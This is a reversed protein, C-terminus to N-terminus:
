TTRFNITYARYNTGDWVLMFEFVDGASCNRGSQQIVGDNDTRYPYVSNNMASVETSRGYIKGNQTSSAHCIITVKIKFKDSSTQGIGLKDAIDYRSPLGVASNTYTFRTIITDNVESNYGIILIQDTGPWMETLKHGVVLGDSLIDGKATIAVNRNANETDIFIGYNTGYPNYIKNEFRGVATAGTSAPLVNSGIFAAAAGNSFKIFDDYLALGDYTASQNPDQTKGIRYNGLTWGGIDGSTAHITGTIEADTFKVSGDHRIIAKATGAIAQSYSGGAWFAPNDGASGAIGNIGMVENSSEDLSILRGQKFILNALNAEEVLLVNVALAKLWPIEEYYTAITEPSPETEGAPVTRTIYTDNLKYWKRDDSVAARVYIYDVINTDNRHTDGPKWEKQVPIKGPMGPVGEAKRGTDVYDQVVDNWQWWNGNEGIYPSHGDSPAWRITGAGRVEAM